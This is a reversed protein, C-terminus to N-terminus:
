AAGTENLTPASRRVTWSTEAMVPLGRALGCQLSTEPSTLTKGEARDDFVLQRPKPDPKPKIGAL